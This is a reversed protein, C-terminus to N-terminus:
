SIVSIGNTNMNKHKNDSRAHQQNFHGSKKKNRWREYEDKRERKEFVDTLFNKDTIPHQEIAQRVM